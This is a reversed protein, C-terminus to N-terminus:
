FIYVKKRDWLHPTEEEDTQGLFTIELVYNKPCVTIGALRFARRVLLFKRMQGDLYQIGVSNQPNTLEQHLFAVFEEQLVPTPISQTKKRLRMVDKLTKM